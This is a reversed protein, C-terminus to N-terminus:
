NQWDCATLASHFVQAAGDLNVCSLEEILCHVVCLHFYEFLASAEWSNKEFIPMKRLKRTHYSFRHCTHSHLLCHPILCSEWVHYVLKNEIQFLCIRFSLWGWWWYWLWWRWLWWRWRVIIIYRAMPPHLLTTKILIYIYSNYNDKCAHIQNCFTSCMNLKNYISGLFPVLTFMLM